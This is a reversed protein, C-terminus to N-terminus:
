AKVESIPKPNNKRWIELQEPTLQQSKFHYDCPQKKCVCVRSKGRREPEFTEWFRLSRAGYLNKMVFDRILLEVTLSKENPKVIEDFKNIIDVDITFLSPKKTTQRM